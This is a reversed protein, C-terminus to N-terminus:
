ASIRVVSPKVSYAMKLVDDLRADDGHRCASVALLLSVALLRARPFM